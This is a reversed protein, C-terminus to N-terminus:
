PLVHQQLWNGTGKERWVLTWRIEPYQSAAVKLVLMSRAMSRMQKPGKCEFCNQAGDLLCTVDPKYWTGNALRFRFAQARLNSVVKGEFNGSALKGFWASEIGNMLPKADQRIRKAPKTPAIKITQSKVDAYVPVVKLLPSKLIRAADEQAMQTRIRDALKKDLNEPKWGM